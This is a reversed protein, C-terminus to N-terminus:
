RIVSIVTNIGNNAECDAYDNTSVSPSAQLKAGDFHLSKKRLYLLLM